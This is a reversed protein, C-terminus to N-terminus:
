RDLNYGTREPAKPVTQSGRASPPERDAQSSAASSLAGAQGEVAPTTPVRTPVSPAAHHGADRPQTSYDVQYAKNMEVPGPVASKFHAVYVKDQIPQAIDAFIKRIPEANPAQAIFHVHEFLRGHQGSVASAHNWERPNVKTFDLNVGQEHALQRMFVQLSRGNGEAFPHIQNAEIFVAVLSDRKQEFSLGKATVFEATKKELEQWRAVITEPEAFRSQHGNDMRKASPVTRVQGAWEYVDQFLHKHIAQQRALGYGTQQIDASRENLEYARNTTAEYEALKLQGADKLGLKNKFVGTDDTYPNAM